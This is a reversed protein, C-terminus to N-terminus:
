KSTLNFGSPTVMSIDSNNSTDIISCNTALEYNSSSLNCYAGKKTYTFYSEGSDSPSSLTFTLKIDYVMNPKTYLTFDDTTINGVFLSASFAGTQSTNLDVTLTNLGSSVTPTAAVVDNYYIACGINSVSLTVASSKGETDVTGVVYIGVSTTLNFITYDSEIYQRIGLLSVLTQEGNGCAIDNYPNINWPQRNNDDLISYSRNVVYNYLPVSPDNYLYMIPGPVGSSSTPTLLTENSSCDVLNNTSNTIEEQSYTRRQFNGSVLQAWKESKTFNNTKTNTKAASYKLIETKRRMDLQFKTYTPYPSTPTFRTPPINLLQMKQRQLYVRYNASCDSYNDTM